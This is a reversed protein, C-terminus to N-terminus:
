DDDHWIDVRPFGEHDVGDVSLTYGGSGSDVHINGKGSPFDKNSVTVDSTSVSWSNEIDSTNELESKKSM